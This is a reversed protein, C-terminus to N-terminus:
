KTGEEGDGSAANETTWEEEGNLDEEPFIVTKMGTTVVYGVVGAIAFMIWGLRRGNSRTDDISKDVKKTSVSKAPSPILSWV